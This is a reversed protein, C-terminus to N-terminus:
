ISTFKSYIYKFNIALSNSKSRYSKQRIFIREFIKQYRVLKYFRADRFKNFSSRNKWIRNKIWLINIPLLVFLLWLREPHEIRFERVNAILYQYVLILSVWFLLELIILGIIAKSTPFHYKKNKDPMKFRIVIENIINENEDYSNKKWYEGTEFILEYISDESVEEVPITKNLRGGIDMKCKFVNKNGSLNKLSVIIGAAHSGNTGNLIHSTIIAM